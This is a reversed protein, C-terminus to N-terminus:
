YKISNGRRNDQLPKFGFEPLQETWKNYRDETKHPLMQEVDSKSDGHLLNRAPLGM